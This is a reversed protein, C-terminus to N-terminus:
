ERCEIAIGVAGYGIETYESALSYGMSSGTCNIGICQMAIRVVRYGIGMYESM